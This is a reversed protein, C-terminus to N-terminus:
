PDFYQLNNNLWEKLISIIRIRYMDTSMMRISKSKDSFHFLFYNTINIINAKSYKDYLEEKPFIPYGKKVNVTNHFDYLFTILESKTQIRNFNCKDLYQAAHAACDPCPLNRCISNIQSLLGERIEQFYEPKIKQAITHMFFWTPEGWKMKKPKETENTAITSTSYNTVGSRTTNYAPTTHKNIFNMNQIQQNNRTNARPKSFIMNM